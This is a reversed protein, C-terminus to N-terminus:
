CITIAQYINLSDVVRGCEGACLPFPLAVTCGHACAICPLPPCVPSMPQSSRPAFLGAAAEHATHGLAPPWAARFGEHGDALSLPCDLLGPHTSVVWMVHVLRPFRRGPPPSEPHLTLGPRSNRAWRRGCQTAKPAHCDTETVEGTFRPQCLGARDQLATALRSVHWPLVYVGWKLLGSHCRQCSGHVRWRTLRQVQPRGQQPPQPGLHGM